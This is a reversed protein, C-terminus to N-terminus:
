CGWEKAATLAKESMEDIDIEQIGSLKSTQGEETTNPAADSTESSHSDKQDSVNDTESPQDSQPLTEPEGDKGITIKESPGDDPPVGTIWSTMNGLLSSM